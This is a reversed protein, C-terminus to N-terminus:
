SKGANSSPLSIQSKSRFMSLEPGIEELSERRILLIISPVLCLGKKTRTRWLSDSVESERILELPGAFLVGANNVVGALPLGEKELIASVEAFARDIDDRKAVDLLLPSLSPLGLSRIAEADAAKRVSALVRNCPPVHTVKTTTTTTTTTTTMMMMMMMTM